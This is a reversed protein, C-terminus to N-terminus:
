GRAERGCGLELWHKQLEDPPLPVTCGDETGQSQGPPTQWNPSGPHAGRAASSPPVQMPVRRQVLYQPEREGVGARGFTSTCCVLEECQMKLAM